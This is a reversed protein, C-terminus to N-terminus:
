PEGTVTLGNRVLMDKFKGFMSRRARTVIRVFVHTPPIRGWMKGTEHEKGNKSFYHRAQSGNDFLWAHPSTSKLIAGASYKGQDIHTVIVGSQLDGSINHRGYETRVEVAAANATADVIRSAEATLESPLNRLQERLEALGDFRM